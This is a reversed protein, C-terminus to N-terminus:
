PRRYSVPLTNVWLQFTPHAIGPVPHIATAGRPWFGEGWSSRFSAHKLCASAADGHNYFIIEQCM